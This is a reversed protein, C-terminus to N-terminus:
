ARRSIRWWSRLRGDLIFGVQANKANRFTLLKASLVSKIRGNPPSGFGTRGGWHYRGCRIADQSVECRSVLVSGRRQMLITDATPSPWGGQERGLLCLM